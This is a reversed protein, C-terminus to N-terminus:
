GPEGTFKNPLVGTGGLLNEKLKDGGCTSNMQLMQLVLSQIAQELENRVNQIARKVEDQDEAMRGVIEDINASLDTIHEMVDGVAERVTEPLEDGSMEM